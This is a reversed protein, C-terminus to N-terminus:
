SKRSKRSRMISAVLQWHSYLRREHITYSIRSAVLSPMWRVESNKNDRKFRCRVSLVVM